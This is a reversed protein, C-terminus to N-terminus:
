LRTLRAVVKGAADILILKSHEDIRWSRAAELAQHFKHEQDMVAPTCAKRTSALPGFSVGAGELRVQGTFANCGGFGTARGEPSLDLTTQLRDIVGGGNIDEALWRGHPMTQAASGTVVAVMAAVAVLGGGVLCRCGVTM